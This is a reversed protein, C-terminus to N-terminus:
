PYPTPGDGLKWGGAFQPGLTQALLGLIHADDGSYSVILRGKHYWHIRELYDIQKGVTQTGETHTVMGGDPSVNSAAASAEAETAFEYASVRVGDLELYRGQIAFGQDAKDGTTKLSAKVAALDAVWNELGYNPAAATGQGQPPCAVPAPYSSGTAATPFASELTCATLFFLM